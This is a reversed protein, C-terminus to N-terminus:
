PIKRRVASDPQRLRARAIEDYPEVGETDLIKWLTTAFGRGGEIYLADALIILMRHLPIASVYEGADRNSRSKLLFDDLGKWEYDRDKTQIIQIARTLTM